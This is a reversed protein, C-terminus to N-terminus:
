FSFNTCLKLKKVGQYTEYTLCKRNVHPICFMILIFVHGLLVFYNPPLSIFFNNVNPITATNEAPSFLHYMPIAAM